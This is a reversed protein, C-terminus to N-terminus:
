ELHEIGRCIIFHSGITSMNCKCCIVSLCWMEGTRWKKRLRLGVVVSLGLVLIVLGAVPVLAKVLVYDPETGPHVRLYFYAISKPFANYYGCWIITGNDKLLVSDSRFNTRQYPHCYGHREEVRNVKINTVNVNFQECVSDDSYCSACRGNDFLEELTDSANRTLCVFTIMVKDKDSIVQCSNNFSSGEMVNIEVPTNSPVIPTLKVSDGAYMHSM